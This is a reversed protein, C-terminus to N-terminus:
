VDDGSCISSSIPWAYGYGGVGICVSSEMVSSIVLPLSSCLYVLAMSTCNWQSLLLFAFFLEVDVSM